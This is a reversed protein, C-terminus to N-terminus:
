SPKQWSILFWTWSLFLFPWKMESKFMSHAPLTTLGISQLIGSRYRGLTTFQTPLRVVPDLRGYSRCHHCCASVGLFLHINWGMFIIFMSESFLVFIFVLHSLAKNGLHCVATAVVTLLCNVTKNCFGVCVLQTQFEFSLHVFHKALSRPSGNMQQFVPVFVYKYLLYVLVHPLM